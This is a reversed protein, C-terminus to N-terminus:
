EISYETIYVSDVIDKNNYRLNLYKYKYPAIGKWKVLVPLVILNTSDSYDHENFKGMINEIDSIKKGKLKYNELLDDLM